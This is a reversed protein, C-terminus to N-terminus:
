ISSNFCRINGEATEIGRNLTLKWFFREENLERKEPQNHEMRNEIERYSQLLKQQEKLFRQLQFSLDERPIRSGFFIHVLFEERIVGSLISPFRNLWEQLEHEGNKTISYVKKDPKGKQPEIRSTVWKKNELASLERYIQSLHASWFYNISSEFMQKLDYGTMPKYTLLGLIAHPLSM